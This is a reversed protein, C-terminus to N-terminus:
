VFKNLDKQRYLMNQTEIDIYLLIREKEKKKMKEKLMNKFELIKKEHNQIKNTLIITKKLNSDLDSYEIIRKQFNDTIALKLLFDYNKWDIDYIELDKLLEKNLNWNFYFNYNETFYILSKNQSWGTQENAITIWTKKNFSIYKEGKNTNMKLSWNSWNHELYHLLTLFEHAFM